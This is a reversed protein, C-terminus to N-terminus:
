QWNTWDIKAFINALKHGRVINLQSVWNIRGQLYSRFYPINALNQSAPGFRVCNHLTAKLQDYESRILNPHQNIVIGTVTQRTASRMIKTKRFQIRFGEEMAIAAVQISFERAIRGFFRAGSFFLDDAYRTYDLGVRSGLGALRCDLRYAISNALAPSTPAGQPLHKRGYLSEMDQILRGNMKVHKALSPEFMALESPTCSTTCLDTLLQTVAYPYGLSRFLGFVRSAQIGPFFGQMDMRLVVSKGVHPTAATVASRGQVFGHAAAHVPIQQLIERVIQRQVMKLRMRPSEVLRIGGSRKQIFQSRYHSKRHKALWDLLGVHIDLWDAVSGVSPLEPIPNHFKLLLHRRM